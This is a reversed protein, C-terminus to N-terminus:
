EINLLARLKQKRRQNNMIKAIARAEIQRVRERSLGLEDAIEELSRSPMDDLGFRLIIIKKERPTLTDLVEMVKERLLARKSNEIPTAYSKDAIFDGIYADEEKGIPKDMSIPERAAEIAQRVKEVPMSLYDAIEEYTPERGLEQMLVKSAKTIRMITEIMHIPIRITRAHDAIARMISQKIWWTAYTSFKYGKRYDFKEVAKILGANGEQILDMFELGRNLFKKAIGIVLRLNGAVMKNKASEYQEYFKDIEEIVKKIEEYSGGFYNEYNKVEKQLVKLEEKLSYLEEKEEESLLNSGELENVAVEIDKKRLYVREFDRFKNKMKEVVEMVKRFNPRLDMIISVIESFKGREYALKIKEFSTRIREKEEMNKKKSTWYNPDVGVIEELPLIEYEIQEIWELFKKIGYKTSFLLNTIKNRADDIEKAYQVEQEKTLLGLNAIQKLYIKAPDDGIRWEEEDDFEYIESLTKRDHYEIEIGNDLLATIIIDFAETGESYDIPIKKVLDEYKIKNGSNRAEKIYKEILKQLREKKSKVMGKQRPM